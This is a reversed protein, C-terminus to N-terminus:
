SDVDLQARILFNKFAMHVPHGHLWAKKMRCCGPSLFLGPRIRRESHLPITGCHSLCAQATRQLARRTRSARHTDECRTRRPCSHPWGYSGPKVPGGRHHGWASAAQGGGALASVLGLPPGGPRSWFATHRDGGRGDRNGRAQPCDAGRRDHRRLRRPCPGRSRAPQAAHPEAHSQQSRERRSRPWEADRCRGARRRRKGRGDGGSPGAGTRRDHLGRAPGHRLDTDIESVYPIERPLHSFTEYLKQMCPRIPGDTPVRALPWVGAGAPTLAFQIGGCLCLLTCPTLCCVSSCYVSICLMPQTVGLSARRCSDGGRRCFPRKKSFARQTMRRPPHAAPARQDM